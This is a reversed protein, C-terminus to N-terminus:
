ASVRPGVKPQTLWKQIRLYNEVDPAKGNCVRSITSHSCGIELAVKRMDTKRQAIAVRLAMAYKEANFLTRPM